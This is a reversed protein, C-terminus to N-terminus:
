HSFQAPLLGCYMSNPDRKKLPQFSNNTQFAMVISAISRLIRGSSSLSATSVALQVVVVVVVRTSAVICYMSCYVIYHVVSATLPAIFSANWAMCHCLIVAVVKLGFFAGMRVLECCCPTCDMKKRHIKPPPDLFARFNCRVSIFWHLQKSPFTQM